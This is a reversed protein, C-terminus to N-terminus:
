YYKRMLDRDRSPWLLVWYKASTYMTCRSRSTVRSIPVGLVIAKNASTTGRPIKIGALTTNM